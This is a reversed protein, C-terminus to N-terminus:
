FWVNSQLKLKVRLRKQPIPCATEKMEVVKFEMENIYNVKKSM